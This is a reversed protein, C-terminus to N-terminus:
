FNLTKKRKGKKLRINGKNEFKAGNNYKIRSVNTLINFFAPKFNYIFKGATKVSWNYNVLQKATKIIFKIGRM